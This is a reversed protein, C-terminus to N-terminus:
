EFRLEYTGTPKVPQGMTVIARPVALDMVISFLTAFTSEGVQSRCIAAPFDQQDQLIRAIGDLSPTTIEDCLAEIKSLRPPSDKLWHIDEVGPHPLVYHNTHFLKGRESMKVEQVDTSSWELGTSGESDAILFHCASAVGCERLGDVAEERSRSELVKRLGLHCPIRNMDLGPIRIANLCVGVGASNLGIKGIIGAETVMKITPKDPQNITLLLLNSSQEEQWDWNQALFSSKETHWALATCGDTATRSSNWLGFTIETRVNLAIIDVM